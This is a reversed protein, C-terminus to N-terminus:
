QSSIETEKLKNQEEHYKIAKKNSDTVREILGHEYIDSYLFNIVEVRSNNNEFDAPELVCDISKFTVGSKDFNEKIGLLLEALREETVEDDYIYITLKGAKAGMERIDYIKDLVLESKNLAYEPKEEDLPYDSMAFQMEGYCIHYNYPFSQSETVSKVANRYDEDLRYATNWGNTVNDYTDLLIKGKFDLSLSFHSDISTPSTINAYYETTKFDYDVSEIVFDKDSFNKELYENASKTALYKSVPNGVLANAFFGIGIILVIALILASIKLIKKKM